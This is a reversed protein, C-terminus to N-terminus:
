NRRVLVVGHEDEPLHPNWVALLDLDSGTADRHRM